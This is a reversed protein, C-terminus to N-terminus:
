VSKLMGIVGHLRNVYDPLDRVTLENAKAQEAIEHAMAALEMVAEDRVRMAANPLPRRKKRDKASVTRRMSGAIMPVGSAAFCAVLLIGAAWFKMEHDFWMVAPILLTGAVGIAVSLSVHMLKHGHAWAVLANYGLGFLFEVLLVLVVKLPNIDANM